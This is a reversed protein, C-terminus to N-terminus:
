GSSGPSVVPAGHQAATDELEQTIQELSKRLLRGGVDFVFLQGEGSAAGSSTFGFTTVYVKGDPGVEIGEPGSSGAPLVAFIEVQGRDWAWAKPTPALLVVFLLGLSRM